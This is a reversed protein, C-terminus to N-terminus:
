RAMLRQNSNMIKAVRDGGKGDVLEKGARSMSQRLAIDTLLNLLEDRSQNSSVTEFWGLHSSIGQESLGEAIERQNDANTITITPLAMFALEWSTSGGAAVAVDAWAMLSPMDIVNRILTFQPEGAVNQQLSEWHPNGAGVVIRADIDLSLLSRLANIVSQTVNAPDGGGMTVLINQASEKVERNWGRWPWFERRLLAYRTGLLLRTGPSRNEYLSEYASINQNLVIDAYYQESHGYDDIVMLALGAEKIARQYNSGFHYGDVVTWKAKIRQALAITSEADGSTGPESSLRFLNLGESALRIELGQPLDVSLVGTTGGYTSWAQALALCRMIHGTGMESNADARIVLNRPHSDIM